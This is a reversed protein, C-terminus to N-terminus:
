AHLVCRNRTIAENSPVHRELVRGSRLVVLGHREPGARVVRHEVPAAEFAVLVGEVDVRLALEVAITVDGAGLVEDEAVGSRHELVAVDADQLWNAALLGGDRRLAPGVGVLVRANDDVIRAYGHRRPRRLVIKAPWPLLVRPRHDHFRSEVPGYIRGTPQGPTPTKSETCKVIGLVHVGAGTGTGSPPHFPRTIM